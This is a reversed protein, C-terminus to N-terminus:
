LGEQQEWSNLTGDNAQTRLSEAVVFIYISSGEVSEPGVTQRNLWFSQFNYVM